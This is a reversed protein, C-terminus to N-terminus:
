CGPKPPQGRKKRREKERAEADDLIFLAWILLLFASPGAKGTAARTFPLKISKMIKRRKAQLGPWGPGKMGGRLHVCPAPRVGACAFPRL